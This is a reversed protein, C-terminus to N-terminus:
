APPKIPGDFEVSDACSSVLWSSEGDYVCLARADGSVATRDQVEVPKWTSPDEVRYDGRIWYWGPSTIQSPKM